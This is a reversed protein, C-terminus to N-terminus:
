IMFSFPKWMGDPNNGLGDRLGVLFKWINGRDLGDLYRIDFIIFTSVYTIVKQTEM